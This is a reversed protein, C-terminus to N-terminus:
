CCDEGRWAERGERIAWAALLLAVAPDIWNWGFRATTALGALVAAAQAACILNQMGEGATAGSNLREGLRRKALGFAPMILLSAATVAIGLASTQARHGTALDHVAEVGLYPALLFFSVAVAKQARAESAESVARSGTFRWIVIVSALGEIVSGVAWGLLSVSGARLGAALGVAGEGSMWVLSAWSLLLVLRADRARTPTRPTVPTPACCADEAAALAVPLRRDPSPTILRDPRTM